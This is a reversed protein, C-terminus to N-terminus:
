SREWTDEPLDPRRQKLDTVLEDVNVFLLNIDPLATQHIILKYQTRQIPWNSERFVEVPEVSSQNVAGVVLGENALADSLKM